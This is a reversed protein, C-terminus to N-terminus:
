INLLSTLGFCVFLVFYNSKGCVSSSEDSGDACDKRFDCRKSKPICQLNSCEFEDASCSPYVIIDIFKTDSCDVVLYVRSNHKCVHM